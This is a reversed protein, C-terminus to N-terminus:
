TMEMSNAYTFPGTGIVGRSGGSGFGMPGRAGRSSRIADRIAHLGAGESVNSRSFSCPGSRLKGVEDCLLSTSSMLQTRGNRKPNVLSCLFLPVGHVASRCLYSREGSGM